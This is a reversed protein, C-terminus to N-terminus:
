SAPGRRPPIAIETDTIRAGGRASRQLARALIELAPRPQGRRGLVEATVCRMFMLVSGGSEYRQPM